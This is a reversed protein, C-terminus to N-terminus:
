LEAIQELAGRNTDVRYSVIKPESGLASLIVPDTLGEFEVEILSQVNWVPNYSRGIIKAIPASFDTVKWVKIERSDDQSVVYERNFKSLPTCSIVTGMHARKNIQQVRGVGIDIIGMM